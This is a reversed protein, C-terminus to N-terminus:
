RNTNELIADLDGITKFFERTLAGLTIEFLEFQKQLETADVAPNTATPVHVIKMFWEALSLWQTVIPTLADRARQNKPDVGEFLRRAKERNTERGAAYESLVEAVDQAVKRPILVDTSPASNQGSNPEPMTGDLSLGAREWSVLIGDLKNQWEFRQAKIGTIAEPLKNAIERVAHAVFRAKGPFGPSHLIHLAGVYLEELMPANRSMWGKLELRLGNWYPDAKPVAPISEGAVGPERTADTTPQDEM